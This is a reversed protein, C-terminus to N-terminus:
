FFETVFIYWVYLVVQSLILVGIVRGLLLSRMRTYYEDKDENSYNAIKPEIKLTLLFAAVGNIVGSLQSLMARQEQNNLALLFASFVGIAYILYVFSSSILIDFDINEYKTLISTSKSKSKIGLVLSKLVSGNVSYKEIVRTYYSIFVKEYKIILLSVLGSLLLSFQIIKLFEVLEVDNDVIYGLLPLLMVYFLRTLTYTTNQIAYGLAVKDSEVGAFRSYFGIMELLHIMTYSFVVIFVVTEFIM